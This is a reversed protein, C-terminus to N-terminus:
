VKVKGKTAFMAAAKVAGKRVSDDLSTLSMLAWAILLTGAIFMGVRIWLHTSTFMSVFTGIGDKATGWQKLDNSGGPLLPSGVAARGRGVYALFSGSTYAVWPTFSNGADAYVQRAMRANDLPNSWSGSRLLSSHISNIQFLGYDTSGNSNGTNKAAPDGGSEALAIAVAKAQDKAPFGAMRVYTAIEGDPIRTM